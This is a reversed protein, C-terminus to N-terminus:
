CNKCGKFMPIPKYRMFGSYAGILASKTRKEDKKAEEALKKKKNKEM